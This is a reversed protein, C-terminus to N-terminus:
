WHHHFKGTVEQISVCRYEPIVHAKKHALWTLQMQQPTLARLNSEMASQMMDTQICNNLVGKHLIQHKELIVTIRKWASTLTHSNELHFQLYGWPRSTNYLVGHESLQCWLCLQFSLIWPSQSHHACWHLAQSLHPLCLPLQQATNSEWGEARHFVTCIKIAANWVSIM